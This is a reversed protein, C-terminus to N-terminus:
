ARRTGDNRWYVIRNFDDPNKASRLWGTNALEELLERVQELTGVTHERVQGVTLLAGPQNTFLRTVDIRRRISADGVIRRAEWQAARSV